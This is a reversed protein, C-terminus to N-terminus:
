REAVIFQSPMGPLDKKEVKAFGAARFMRDYESFTYADGSPTSALMTLSFSAAEPPSVRDENPVFEVAIARGGPALAAHARRLLTENTPPDFHHLFNTLLVIAHGTGFDVEFASGPLRSFRDAVGARSANEQAVALVNPWDQAIVRADPHHRALTIGYLGHGAAVDLVTGRIPGGGITGALVEAMVGALPAMARAFDVWVPHEPALTGEEGIATGGKRVAETLRDFADKITPSSLFTVTSGVFAPSARDLFFATDEALGYRDGSKTLFGDVVLRDCLIRVGRASAGSRTAVEAATAGAAGIASFLDLDIAARMAATKQYGTFADFVRAPTVM